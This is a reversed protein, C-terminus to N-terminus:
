PLDTFVLTHSRAKIVRGLPTAAGEGLSGRLAGQKGAGSIIVWVQKAAQIVGYGLTVRRAPPKPGTVARYVAPDRVASAPEGPFLSAVHGDEGMGLLVLDLVPQGGSRCAAVTLLESAAQAAASHPDQEGRIRHVFGAEVKGPTLMLENVMHFNSEPDTPPVCREDAWFFHVGEFSRPPAARAVIEQFVLRSIRGGSLAVTFKGSANRPAALASWWAVAVAGALEEPSGYRGLEVRGTM